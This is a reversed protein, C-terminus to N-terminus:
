EDYEIKPPSSAHIDTIDAVMIVPIFRSQGPVELFQIQGKVQVWDFDNFKSLAQPVIIRVKLPVTDAACCTMKLRFLSFEKDALRKFRGELIATKGQMYKRQGENMAADNLENFRMRTGEGGGLLELKQEGSPLITERLTLGGATKLTRITAEVSQDKGKGNSVMEKKTDLVEADKALDKLMESGLASGTGARKLQEEASLTGSPLGFFFLLVPFILILMRAFVWSMDSSHEHPSDDETGDANFLVHNCNAGHIHNIGCGSQNAAQIAGAQKWVSVSRLAVLVLITIGGGLVWPRFQEALINELKGMQWLLIATVGFLGCVLITILQETFYNRISENAAQEQAMTPQAQSM